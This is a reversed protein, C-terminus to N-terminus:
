FTNVKLDTNSKNLKKINYKLSNIEKGIELYDNKFYRLEEHKLSIEDNMREIEQKLEPIEKNIFYL